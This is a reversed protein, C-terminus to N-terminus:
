SGNSRTATDEISCEFLIYLNKSVRDMRHRLHSDIPKGLQDAYMRIPNWEQYEASTECQFLELIRQLHM